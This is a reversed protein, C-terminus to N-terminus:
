LTRTARVGTRRFAFRFFLPFPPRPPPSRLSALVVAGPRASDGMRATRGNDGVVNPLEVKRDNADISPSLKAPLAMPRDAPEFPTAPVTM